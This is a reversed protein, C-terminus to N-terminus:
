AFNSGRAAAAACSHLGPRLGQTLPPLRCHESLAFSIDRRVGFDTKM